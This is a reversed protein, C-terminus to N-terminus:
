RREDTLRVGVGYQYVLRGGLNNSITLLVVGALSLLLPGVSARSAELTPGLRLGINFAYLLLIVVNFLAHVTGVRFMVTGPVLETLYDAAGAVAALLAVLEGVVMTYFATKVYTNGGLGLSFLDFLLSTPFLAAPFHVLMPHIPHGLFHDRRLVKLM